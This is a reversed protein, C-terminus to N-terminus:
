DVQNIEQIEGLWYYTTIRQPYTFYYEKGSQTKFRFYSCEFVKKAAGFDIENYLAPRSQTTDVPSYLYGNHIFFPNDGKIKVQPLKDADRLCTPIVRLRKASGSYYKEIWYLRWRHTLTEFYPKKWAIPSAKYGYTIDAFVVGDPSKQYLALVNETEAKIKIAYYTVVSYHALLFVSIATTVIFVFGRRQWGCKMAINRWLYITSIIEFLYGLWATRAGMTAFWLLNFAAGSLAIIVFVIFLPDALLGRMSKRLAVIFVTILLILLPHHYLLLNNMTLGLDIPTKGVSLRVVTGPVSALWILGIVLGIIMAVRSMSILQRRLALFAIFGVLLPASFGEHWAGMLLGLVFSLVVHPQSKKILFIYALFLALASAWIYNFAFCITFMCENWPLMFSLMFALVILLFPNRWDVSCLKASMWLMVGAFLGSIISPIVKPLLLAFTYVFNALRANDTYYHLGWCSILGDVPFDTDLGKCYDAFPIMYWYDDCSYPMIVYILVHAITFLLITWWYFGLM